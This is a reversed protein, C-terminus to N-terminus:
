RSQLGNQARRLIAHWTACQMSPSLSRDQRLQLAAERLSHGGALLKSVLQDALPRLRRLEEDAARRAALPKTEWIRVTSDGSGSILTTGDPSFAMSFVYDNHGRLRALDDGSTMDWLHIDLDRGATALRKGDPHFVVAFIQDSHGYLQRQQEGSQTDWIRVIRDEGASALRRGDPSFAVAYLPDKVSGASALTIQTCTRIDVLCLAPQGAIVAARRGDPSFVVHRIPGKVDLTLSEREKGTLLEWFRIRNDFGCAVYAGDPSIAVNQPLFNLSGNNHPLRDLGGDELNFLLEGTAADWIRLRGDYSRAVIRSSDPSIALSAVFGQMGDLAAIPQGSAADWLRVANDWGGSAFWRGDPSYAVPYIFSTHGRVIRLNEQNPSPWRRVTSDYAWSFLNAGDTSFAVKGVAETHGRLVAVAEGGDARWLRLTRDHSGSLIWQGDPSFSADNVIRSHARRSRLAKGDPVSWQRITGDDGWSLLSLDDPHFAIGRVEKNHGRCVSQAAGSELDWLRVTSDNWAAALWRGDHSICLYVPKGTGVYVRKVKELPAASAGPQAIANEHEWTATLQGGDHGFSITRWKRSDLLGGPRIRGLAEPLSFPAGDYMVLVPPFTVPQVCWAGSTRPSDALSQGTEADILQLEAETSSMALMRRDASFLSLVSRSDTPIHETVPSDDLLRTHYHDWEWGRLAVPATELNQAADALVRDDLALMAAGLRARYAEREAARANEAARLTNADALKRAGAEGLAFMMSVVSGLFLAAMGGLVGGVFVKNRRAFKRVRNWSSAQRAEIPEGALFRGLDLALDLASAYRESPEKRLCKLCITELDRPVQPQVRRPPLPDEHLVQLVLELPTDAEYLPKGVLLEYLIAGLSYVDATPGIQTEAGQSGAQEPAMYRPTGVGTVWRSHTTASGEGWHKALGFDAIKPCLDSTPVCFDSTLSCLDSFAVETRTEDSKQGGVESKQSRVESKQLLINGPKLDRHLIGCEHAYHAAQALQALFHATQRCAAASGVPWQGRAVADALSGGAVYELSLYALGESEGIEYIQVIHPHTLRAVARAEAYFLELSKPNAHVGSLIMKLAVIRGLQIDRAKYVVGMGGHGLVELIEYGEVKPLRAPSDSSIKRINGSFAANLTSASHHKKLRASVHESFEPELPLAGSLLCQSSASPRTLEELTKQCQSCAHVHAELGEEEGKSLRDALLSELQARPPCPSLM